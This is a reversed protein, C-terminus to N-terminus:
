NGATSSPPARTSAAAMYYLRQTDPSDPSLTFKRQLWFPQLAQYYMTVKVSVDDPVTGHRCRCSTACAISAPSTPRARTTPIARSPSRTRRSWSSARRGRSCSRTSVSWSTAVIVPARQHRRNRRVPAEYEAGTRGSPSVLRPNAWFWGHFTRDDRIMVTWSSASAEILAEFGEPDDAYAARQQELRAAPPDFMEKVIM